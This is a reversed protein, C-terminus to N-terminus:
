AAAPLALEPIEGHGLVAAVLGQVPGDREAQYARVADDFAATGEPPAADRFAGLAAGVEADASLRPSAAAVADFRRALGELDNAAGVQATLGGGDRASRWAGLAADLEEVLAAAPGPTGRAADAAAALRVYREDLAPAIAEWRRDVEDRAAELDPRTVLVVVSAAVALLVFLLVLVRRLARM